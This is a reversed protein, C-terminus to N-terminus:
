SRQRLAEFCAVGTAVSVNLSEVGGKMPLKYLADCHSKVLRRIGDGEAGMVLVLSGRLDAKYLSQEADGDLGYVQYGADQVQEIARSLNTVQIYPVRDAGGAAVRMVVDNLPASHDKPAVVAAVGAADATRMIAGLNHPDTVGDLFLLFRSSAPQDELQELLTPLDDVLQRAQAVAVVGQHRQGAALGDLRAMDATKVSIGAKQLEDVLAKIRQDKRSPEVWVETITDAAVRLRARVAHFGCLKVTQSSTQGAAQATAHAQGYPRGEPQGRSPSASSRPGRAM